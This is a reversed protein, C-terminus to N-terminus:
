LDYALIIRWHNQKLEKGNSGNYESTRNAFFTKVMLGHVQQPRWVLTLDLEYADDLANLNEGVGGVKGV